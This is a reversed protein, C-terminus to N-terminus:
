NDFVAEAVPCLGKGYRVPNRAQSFPWRSHNFASNKRLYGYDLYVPPIYGNEGPIGEAQLAETFTPGDV